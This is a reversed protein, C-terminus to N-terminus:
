YGAVTLWEFTKGGDVSRAVIGNSGSAWVINDDVVSLGRISTKRGSDLINIVVNQANISCTIFVLSVVFLIKKLPM